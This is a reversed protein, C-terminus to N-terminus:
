PPVSVEATPALAPRRWPNTAAYGALTVAAAAVAALWAVPPVPALSLLQRGWATCFALVQLVLTAGIAGALYPNRWWGREFAHTSARAGYASVIHALLLSLLLQTRVQEDTWGASRAAVATTLVAAAMVLARAVIRATLPRDLLRRSTRPGALHDHATRDVGLALAPAGDTVLNCWLLQVPLLPVPLSPLVLLGLGVVVVESLNGALLYAVVARLNARIRRGEAIARVITGLDGNTVVLQAAERAVDTGADGAVAVGVDAHRLAPADNVGDGTMAVVAGTARHADVLEVKTSPDVRAVVAARGLAAIRDDPGLRALDAGTVTAGHIGVARAVANATAPHDGTVMVLSIGARQCREVAEATSTRLPDHFAVLGLPRLGGAALEPSAASAVALVRMGESALAEAATSVQDRAVGAECRPLVAEPAGKVTLVPGAPGAVVTAMCRASPDFPALDLRPEAEHTAFREPVAAAIASELPDASGSRSEDCRMLGVWLEQDTACAATITTAVALGGTTLTGTKDTCLVDVVGLAEVAALQRVVAGARALHHAGVALAGTVVAALGEPLAAVALAVGALVADVAADPSSGRVWVVPVLVAGVGVAISSMWVAVRRLEGVLPPDTSVALESALRALTTATGTREVLASARGRVVLTGALLEDGDSRGVPLSEGSLLSEDVGLAHSALVRGDAGIRDGPELEVVDGVVLDSAPVVIVAGDRWAKATPAAMARLAAIASSARHEQVTAILANLIGIAAIAVAEAGHSLVL